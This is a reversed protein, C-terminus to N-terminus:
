YPTPGGNAKLAAANRRPIFKYLNEVTEVPIIKGNKKFFLKL